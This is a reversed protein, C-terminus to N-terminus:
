EFGRPANTWMTLGDVNPVVGSGGCHSVMPNNFQWQTQPEPGPRLQGLTTGGSGDGLFGGFAHPGIGFAIANAYGVNFM